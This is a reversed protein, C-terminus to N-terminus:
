GGSTGTQGDEPAPVRALCGLARERARQDMRGHRLSDAALRRLLEPSWGFIRACRLYEGALDIGFIGPDDTALAVPVGAHVLHAVPHRRLDPAVELRVNSTPCVELCVRHRRLRAMMAPDEAGRLGHGLRPPDFIDLAARVAAADAQEGAHPLIPLGLERAGAALTRWPRLDGAREPGALGIGAVADTDARLLRRAVDLTPAGTVPLHRVVDLVWRVIVGRDRARRRGEVLGAVLAEPRVRFGLVGSLFTSPTFTVEAHCVGSAAQRRALDDTARALDEPEALCASVALYLPVFARFGRVRDFARAVRDPGGGLGPVIWARARPRRRRATALAWTLEPTLSGELHVHLEAKPLARVFAELSASGPAAM